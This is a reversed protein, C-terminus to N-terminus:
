KMLVKKGNKIVIGKYDKGVVQGSLNYITESEHLQLLRFTDLNNTLCAM